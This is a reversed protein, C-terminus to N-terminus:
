VCRIDSVIKGLVDSTVSDNTSFLMELSSPTLGDKLDQPSVHEYGDVASSFVGSFDAYIYKTDSSSATQLLHTYSVPAHGQGRRGGDM